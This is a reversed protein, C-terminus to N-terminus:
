PDLLSHLIGQMSQITEIAPEILKLVRELNGKSGCANAPCVLYIVEGRYTERTFGNQQIGCAKSTSCKLWTWRRSSEGCKQRRYHWIHDSLTIFLTFPRLNWSMSADIVLLLAAPVWGIIPIWGRYASHAAEYRISSLGYTGNQLMLSRTLQRYLRHSSYSLHIGLAFMCRQLNKGWHRHAGQFVQGAGAVGQHRRCPKSDFWRPARLSRRNNQALVVRISKEQRQAAVKDSLTDKAFQNLDEIVQKASKSMKDM